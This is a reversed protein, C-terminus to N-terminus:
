KEVKKFTYECDKMLPHESLQEIEKLDIKSKPQPVSLHNPLSSSKKYLAEHDIRPSPAASM